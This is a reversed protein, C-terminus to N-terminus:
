EGAVPALYKTLIYGYEDHYVCLIFGNEEGSEPFALVLAGLPVKALRRSSAARKERLSVYSQCNVVRMNPGQERHLAVAHEGAEGYVPAFPFIGGGSDEELLLYTHQTDQEVWSETYVNYVCEVPYESGTKSPDDTSTFRLTLRDMGGSVIEFAWTGEFSCLPAGDKDSCLLSMEGNEELALLALDAEQTEADAEQEGTDASFIWRGPLTKLMEADDASAAPVCAQAALLLIVFFCLAARANGWAKGAMAVSGGQNLGNVWPAEDTDPGQGPM